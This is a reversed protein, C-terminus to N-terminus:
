NIGARLAAANAEAPCDLIRWQQAAQEFCMDARRNEESQGALEGAIEFVRALDADAFQLRNLRDVAESFYDGFQKWEGLNALGPLAFVYSVAIWSEQGSKRFNEFCSLVESHADEFRDDFMMVLALNLRVINAEWAGISDYVRKARGYWDMARDLRGKSRAADALANAVGALGRQGGCKEWHQLSKIFLPM